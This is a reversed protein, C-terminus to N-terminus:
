KGATIHGYDKVITYLFKVPPLDTQIGLTNKVKETVAMVPVSNGTTRNVELAQQILEIDQDNLQVVQQFVPSYADETLTFVQQATVAQQEVLKVVTTGAAIDGLRQGKGSIAIVLLALAGSFLDIEFIRVLWRIIYNGITAPSGDLRVVKIKMQRKGPSQGNMFIEFLLHYLFLPIIILSIMGAPSNVGGFGIIFFILIVYAIMILVDVFYALIRDGLSALPYDIVVNQTTRVSVTQM